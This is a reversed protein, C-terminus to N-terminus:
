IERAALSMHGQVVQVRPDAAALGELLGQSGAVLAAVGFVVRGLGDAVDDVVEAFRLGGRM